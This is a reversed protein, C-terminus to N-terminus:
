SADTFSSRLSVMVATDVVCGTNAAPCTVSPCTGVATSPSGPCVSCCVNYTITYTIGNQDTQSFLPYTTAETGVPHAGLALLCSTKYRGTTSDINNASVQSRLTELAAQGFVAATLAREKQHVPQRVASLTSFVGAVSIVFIM